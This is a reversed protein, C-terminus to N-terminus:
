TTAATAAADAETNINRTRDETTAQDEQTKQPPANARRPTAESDETPAPSVADESLVRELADLRSTIDQEQDDGETTSLHNARPTGTESEGISSLSADNYALAADQQSVFLEANFSAETDVNNDLQEVSNDLAESPAVVLLHDLDMEEADSAMSLDSSTDMELHTASKTPIWTILSVLARRAFALRLRPRPRSNM